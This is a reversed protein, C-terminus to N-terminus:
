VLKASWLKMEQKTTLSLLQKQETTIEVATIADSPNQQINQM